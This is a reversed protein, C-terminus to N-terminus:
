LQEDNKFFEEINEEKIYSSNDYILGLSNHGVSIEQHDSNKIWYLNSDILEHSLKHQPYMWLDNNVKDAGPREYEFVDDCCFLFIKNAGLQYALGIGACVPNRYDDICYNSNKYSTNFTEEPTPYYM